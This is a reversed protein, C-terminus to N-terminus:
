QKLLKLFISPQEAVRVEVFYLGVPIDGLFFQTDDRVERLLQGAADLLRLQEIRHHDTELEVRVLDHAPNPMLRIGLDQFISEKVKVPILEPEDCQTWQENKYRLEAHNQHTNLMNPLGIPPWNNENLYYNPPTSRYLSAETLEETELPLIDGLQNNGYEFHDLGNLFYNGLMQGDNTIENGVFNQSDTPILFNMFIGYLEARNRFFTNLPGNSGHSDDIVINQVTNGEFLNAYPYNGHLVLDGASNAPLNVGTWFPSTAYNYSFANGNAGAQLIMAHRLQEFINETVLSRGTSFELIVGYAKGGGGYDFAEHFYSGSVTVETSNRIDVHAFNCFQSEICKVQCSRVYDMRINSTQADTTDLRIIKLQEIFVEEKLDLLQVTAELETSFNRRLPNSLQLTNGSKALVQEIQGTSYLAWSSTIKETDDDTIKIFDGVELLTADAVEIWDQGRLATNM